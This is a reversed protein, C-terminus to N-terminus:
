ERVTPVLGELDADFTAVPADLLRALVVLTADAFSIGREYHQLHAELAARVLDPGSARLELLAPRGRAGARSVEQVLRESIERRGPRRRLLTVAEGLVFENTLAAGYQGSEIRNFIAKARPHLPDGPNLYAVLPGTDVLLM